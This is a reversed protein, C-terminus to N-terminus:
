RVGGALRALESRHIRPCDPTLYTVKVRGSKVMRRVTSVSSDMKGAFRQFTLFEPEVDPHQIHPESLSLALHSLDVPFTVSRWLCEGGAWRM